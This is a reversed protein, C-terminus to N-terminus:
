EGGRALFRRALPLARTWARYMLPHYICDLPGIWATEDPGFGEKFQSIGETVRGNLDYLTYGDAKMEQIAHWKLLTNAKTNQGAKGIGGYLEVAYRGFCAMWLFSIPQGDRFAIYLYQRQPDYNKYIAEYYSRSHLGFHAREATEIYIQYCANLWEGTTDRRIETGEREEKRIQQRTKSRMAALIEDTTRTLDITYTETVQVMEDSPRFGATALAHETGVPWPPDVKCFIAGVSRGYNRVAEMLAQLAEGDQPAVVPGRPIYLMSLPARPVRRVLVQAAARLQGDDGIAAVRWAGWGTTRKV